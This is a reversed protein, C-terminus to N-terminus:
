VIDERIEPARPAAEVLYACYEELRSRAFGASTLGNAPRKGQDPTRSQVPCFLCAGLKCWRDRAEDAAQRTIADLSLRRRSM